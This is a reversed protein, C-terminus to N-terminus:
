IISLNVGYKNLLEVLSNYEKSKKQSMPLVSFLDDLRVSCNYISGEIIATFINSNLLSVKAIKEAKKPTIGISRLKNYRENIIEASNDILVNGVKGSNLYDSVYKIISNSWDSSMYVNISEGKHNRIRTRCIAQIVRNSYYEVENLESDFLMNFDTIVSRPVQYKGLLIISDYDRYKNTAKDLGSGYYEISYDRGEIFGLKSLEYSIYYTLKFNKNLIINNSKDVIREDVLEDNIESNNTKFDRWTFILTKKNSKLIDSITSVVSSIKDKLIKDDSELDTPKISRDLDFNFININVDGNYKDKLGLVRFKRSTNLTIDSTGDLLLIHTLERGDTIMNSFGYRVKVTDLPSNVYKDFNLFLEELFQTRRIKSLEDDKDFKHYLEPIARSFNEVESCFSSYMPNRRVFKGTPYHEKIFKGGIILNEYDRFDAFPLLSVKSVKVSDSAETMEDIIVWQRPLPNDGICHLTMYTPPLYYSPSPNFTTRMLLNMPENLLKHHTCLIIKKNYLEEPNNRWLDNNTGEANNDSHLVIIDDEKLEVGNLISGILSKCHEYMSNVEEITFASYLIGENWKLAILDKVVTTKGSGCGPCLAYAGHDISPIRISGNLFNFMLGKESNITEVSIKREQNYM